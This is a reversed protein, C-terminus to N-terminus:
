VSCAGSCSYKYPFKIKNYPGCEENTKCTAYDDYSNGVVWCWEPLACGSTCSLDGDLCNTTLCCVAKTGIKEEWFYWSTKGLPKTNKLLSLLQKKNFQIFRFLCLYINCNVNNYIIFRM